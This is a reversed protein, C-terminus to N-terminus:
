RAAVEDACVQLECILRDLEVGHKEAFHELPVPPPAAKCDDCMGYQSLVDVADPYRTLVERVTTQASFEVRTM